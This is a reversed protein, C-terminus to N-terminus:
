SIWFSKLCFISWVSDLSFECMCVWQANARLFAYVCAKSVATCHAGQREGFLFTACILSLVITLGQRISLSENVPIPLMVQLIIYTISELWSVISRKHWITPANVSLRRKKQNLRSSLGGFVEDESMYAWFLSVCPIVIISM